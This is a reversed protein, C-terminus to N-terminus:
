NTGKRNSGAVTAKMAPEITWRTGSGLAIQGRLLGGLGNLRVTAHYTGPVVGVVNISLTM